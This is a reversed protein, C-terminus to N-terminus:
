KVRVPLSFYQNSPIAKGERIIATVEKLIQTKQEETFQPVPEFNLESKLVTIPKGDNENLQDIHDKQM